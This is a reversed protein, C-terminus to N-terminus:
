KKPFAANNREVENWSTASMDMYSTGPDMLEWAERHSLEWLDKPLQGKNNKITADAGKAMLSDIFAVDRRAYALHLATNGDKNQLNLNTHEILKNVLEDWKKNRRGKCIALQLATKKQYGWDQANYDLTGYEMLKFATEVAANAVAWLLPTNGMGDRANIDMKCEEIFLPIWDVTDGDERQAARHLVTIQQTLYKWFPNKIISKIKELIVDRNLSTLDEYCSYFENIKIQKEFNEDNILRELDNLYVVMHEIAADSFHTHEMKELEEVTYTDMKTYIATNDLIKEPNAFIISLQSIVTRKYIEFKPSAQIECIKIKINKLKNLKEENSKYYGELASPSPQIEKQVSSPQNISPNPDVVNQKKAIPQQVEQRVNSSILKSIEETKINQLYRPISWGVHAVLWDCIRILLRNNHRQVSEIIYKKESEEPITKQIASYDMVSLKTVIASLSEKRPDIQVIFREMWTRNDRKRSIEGKSNLFYWYNHIRM